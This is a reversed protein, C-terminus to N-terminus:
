TKKSLEPYPSSKLQVPEFHAPGRLKDLYDWRILIIGLLFHFHSATENNITTPTAATPKSHGTRSGRSLGDAPAATSASREISSAALGVVCVGPRVFRTTVFSTGRFYHTRTDCFCLPKDCHHTTIKNCIRHIRPFFVCQTQGRHYNTNVQQQHDVCIAPGCSVFIASPDRTFRVVHRFLTRLSRLRGTTSHCRSNCKGACGREPVAAM